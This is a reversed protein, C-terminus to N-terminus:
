SINMDRPRTLVVFYDQPELDVIYINKELVPLNGMERGRDIAVEKVVINDGHPVKLLCSRTVHFKRDVVLSIGMEVERTAVSCYM